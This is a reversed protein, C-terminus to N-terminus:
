IAVPALARRVRALRADHEAALRGYRAARRPQDAMDAEEAGSVCDIRHQDVVVALAALGGTLYALRREASCFTEVAGERGEFGGGIAHALEHAEAAIDVASGARRPRLRLAGPKAECLAGTDLFRAKEDWAVKVGAARAALLLALRAQHDTLAPRNTATVDPTHM